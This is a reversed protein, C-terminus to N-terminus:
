PGAVLFIFALDWWWVWSSPGMIGPIGPLGRWGSDGVVWSRQWALTGCGWKTYCLPWTWGDPGDM